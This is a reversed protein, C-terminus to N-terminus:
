EESRALRARRRLGLALVDALATEDDSLDADDFDPDSHGLARHAAEMMSEVVHFGVPGKKVKTMAEQRGIALLATV